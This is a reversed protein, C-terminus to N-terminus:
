NKKKSFEAILSEDVMQIIPFNQHDGQKFKGWRQYSEDGGYHSISSYQSNLDKRDSAFEFRQSRRSGAIRFKMNRPLLIEKELSQINGGRSEPRNQLSAGQKTFIEMVVYGQNKNGGNRDHMHAMIFEPDATTSMFGRDKFAEGTKFYREIYENPTVGAPVRFFRYVKRPEEAQKAKAIASDLEAIEQLMREKRGDEKWFPNQGLLEPLGKRRLHANVLEFLNMAYSRISNDEDQTLKETWAKQDEFLAKTYVIREEEPLGKIAERAKQTFLAKLEAPIPAKNPPACFPEKEPLHERVLDKHEEKWQRVADSAKREVDYDGRHKYRAKRRVNAIEDAYVCRKGGDAISQCM